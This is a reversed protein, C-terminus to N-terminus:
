GRRRRADLPITLQESDAVTPDEDLHRPRASLWGRSASPARRAHPRAPARRRERVARSGVPEAARGARAGVPEGRGAAAARAPARGAAALRRLRAARAVALAVFIGWEIGTTTIGPGKVTMSQKDFIRWM